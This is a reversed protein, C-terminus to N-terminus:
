FPEEDNNENETEPEEQEDELETAEKFADTADAKPEEKPAEPLKAKAPNLNKGDSKDVPGGFMNGAGSKTDIEQKLREIAQKDSDKVEAAKALCKKADVFKDEALNQKALAIWGQFEKKLKDKEDKQKKAMETAKRATEVSEEFDKINAVLGTAQPLGNKLTEIFGDDFEEPTGNIVIPVINDVAKDKVGTLCPMISAVLEQGERRLTITLQQGDSLMESLSKFFEM